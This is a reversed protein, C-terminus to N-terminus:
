DAKIALLRGSGLFVIALSSLLYFIQLEVMWGGHESLSSFDGSHVLVLAFLM